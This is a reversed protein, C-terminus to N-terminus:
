GAQQQFAALRCAGRRQKLFHDAHIFRGREQPLKRQGPEAGAIAAPDPAQVALVIDAGSAVEAATGLVAGAEEYQADPICATAEAACLMRTPSDSHTTAPPMSDILRIGYRM